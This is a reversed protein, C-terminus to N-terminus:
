NYFGTEKVRPRRNEEFLIKNEAIQLRKTNRGFVCLISETKVKKRMIVLINTQVPRPHATSEHNRHQRRQDPEHLHDSQRIIMATHISM